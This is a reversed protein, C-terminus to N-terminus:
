LFLCDSSFITERGVYRSGLCGLHLQHRCGKSKYGKTGRIEYGCVQGGETETYPFGLNYGNFAKNATDQILSLYPAFAAATAADLGRTQLLRTLSGDYPRVIYREPSFDKPVEKLRVYEADPAMVPMNSYKLLVNAIKEWDSKGEVNFKGLNERIFTIVDGRSGDRRFYTQSAKDKPNRIIIKDSGGEGVLEIYRGVGASKDLRYGLAYAIDDVGVHQKALRFDVKYSDDKM